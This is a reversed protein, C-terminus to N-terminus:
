PRLPPLEIKPQEEIESVPGIQVNYTVVSTARGFVDFVAVGIKRRGPSLLLQHSHVMAEKKAAEVHEDALRIGLPAVDIESIGGDDAVAGFYLRLSVEHKGEPRPLFVVDQLPVQIRIPLLYDDGNDRPIARQWTVEVGLPNEQHAYLLASRLNERIRTETTKSRFGARHRVQLGKRRESLKVEIKHYRGSDTATSAIGLSYFSRFDRAARELAPLIENQNVIAQGGTELAMLRLPAQLNEPVVSDLMMRIRPNVFGAHEAAGFAFAKLGGADITYFAVRHANAYRNLREFRRSTDHRPIEAYAESMKFKEGVAEFMEEGSTMPVGSSVYLVAKRGPLGGLSDIMRQLADVTYGVGNMQEEAYQRAYILAQSASRADEIRELTDAQERRRIDAYGADDVLGALADQIRVYDATFPQRVKLSREHTVLMAQDGGRLTRGLFQWLAPFIRNRELPDINYNDVYIIMWLRHEPAIEPELRPVRAVPDLLDDGDAAQPEAADAADEPKGDFVAYFNTIPVAEGDKLVVFDDRTLGQVPEGDKDTVWVDINAIEVDVVDFFDGAPDGGDDEDQAALAGTFLTLLVILGLLHPHRM